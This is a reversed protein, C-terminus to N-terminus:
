NLQKLQEYINDVRTCGEADVHSKLKGSALDGGDETFKLHYGCQEIIDLTFYTLFYM